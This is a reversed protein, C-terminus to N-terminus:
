SVKVGPLVNRLVGFCFSNALSFYFGGPSGKARPREYLFMRSGEGSVYLCSILFWVFGVFM